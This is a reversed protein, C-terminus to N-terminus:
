HRVKDGDFYRRMAVRGGYTFANLMHAPIAAPPEPDQMSADIAANSLLAPCDVKKTLHNFFKSPEGTMDDRCVDGCGKLVAELHPDGSPL